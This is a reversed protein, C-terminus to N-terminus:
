ADPDRRASRVVEPTVAQGVGMRERVADFVRVDAAKRAENRRRASALPLALRRNKELRSRHRELFAWYLDSIPCTEDPDLACGECFDSMKRIYPTGSVYPKTTMLEGVAFTGMALVNPEVVWDYADTYAVWFWDTLARPEVDLLTALNSLVMLRTIHHGYGEEWVGEVVHDLCHLGSATGWFAEPLPGDAGLFSPAAVGDREPVGEWGPIERFGDTARHVHRVFERWGLVQRLFGEQSALPLDMELVDGVVRRPTLRHLNLLGSIRTHFLTRSQVSMADEFPGFRPLCADRVWGWLTEADERTAPLAEPCLAGPHDGFRDEVLELVEEKVPDLPFDPPIAAPPDGDWAERNEADFSYKGGVPKGDEMLIGTRKRVQRYFADMRWPPSAGAGREFDDETTLWGEHPLVELGGQTVLPELDERLEREAAEMMRLVGLERVLPALADAYGGPSVVHRIAVGRGAQELTFHRLNALLLALKQKHYPRRGGKAPAEVVVIGLEEPAERALPGLADCLQDYPVFLWRRGVPDTQRIALETRFLSSM